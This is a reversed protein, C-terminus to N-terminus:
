RADVIAAYLGVTRLADGAVARGGVELRTVTGDEDDVEADDIAGLEDGRVTLVRAGIVDTGAAAVREEDDGHPERLDDARGLTVADTGISRVTSWDVFRDGVRLSRVAVPDGGLVVGDVSGVPGARDVDLVELGIIESLRRM